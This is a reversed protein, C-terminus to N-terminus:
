AVSVVDTPSAVGREQPLPGTRRRRAGGARLRHNVHLADVRYGLARLARWLCTSDAGGSVLALVEGGPPILEHERVFREVRERLEEM